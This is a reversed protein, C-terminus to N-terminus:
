CAKSWKGSISQMNRIEAIPQSCASARGREAGAGAIRVIGAATRRRGWAADLRGVPSTATGGMGLWGARGGAVGQRRRGGGVRGPRSRLDRRSVARWTPFVRRRRSGALWAPRRATWSRSDTVVAGLATVGLHVAAVHRWALCTDVSDEPRRPGPGPRPQSPARSHGRTWSDAPPQLRWPSHPGRPRPVLGPMRLSLRPTPVPVAGTHPLVRSGGASSSPPSPRLREGPMDASEAPRRRAIASRNRPMSATVSALRARSVTSFSRTSNSSRRRSIRATSVAATRRRSSALSSSTAVAARPISSSTYWPTRTGRPRPKAPRTAAVRRGSAISSMSTASTTLGSSRSLPM